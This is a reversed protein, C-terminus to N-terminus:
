DWHSGEEGQAGVTWAPPGDGGDPLGGLVGGWEARTVQVGAKLVKTREAGPAKIVQRKFHM